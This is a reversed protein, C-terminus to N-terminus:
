QELTLGVDVYQGSADERKRCHVAIVNDGARLAEVAEPWGDYNDYGGISGTVGVALVGNFYVEVDGVHRMNLILSQKRPDVPSDLKLTTRAWIQQM